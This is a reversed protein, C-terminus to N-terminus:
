DLPVHRANRDPVTALKVAVTIGHPVRRAFAGDALVAQVSIGDVRERALRPRAQSAALRVGVRRLGLSRELGLHQGCLGCTYADRGFILLPKIKAIKRRM